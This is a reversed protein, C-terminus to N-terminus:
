LPRLACLQIGSKDFLLDCSDMVPRLKKASVPPMPFYDYTATLRQLEHHNIFLHTIGESALKRLFADTDSSEELWMRTDNLDWASAFHVEHDFYLIRTEGILLLKAEKPLNGAAWRAGEYYPLNQKLYDEESVKGLVHEFAAGERNYYAHAFGVFTMYNKITFGVVLCLLFFWAYRKRKFWHLMEHLGLLAILGLVPYIFRTNQAFCAWLLMYVVCFFLWPRSQPARLAGIVSFVLLLAFFKGIEAGSGLGDFSWFANYLLGMLGAPTFDHHAIDKTLNMTAHAAGPHEGFWQSLAPHFPNGFSLGNRIYWPSAVLLAILVHIGALFIRRNFVEKKWVLFCLGGALPMYIGTYKSGAMLGGVLSALILYRVSAANSLSLAKALALAYLLGLCTLPIALSTMTAMLAFAPASLLLASALCPLNEGEDPFVHRAFAYIGFFVGTYMFVIFLKSLTAGGLEFLTGLFLGLYAPFGTHLVAPLTTMEGRIFYQHPLGVHYYLADYFVEPVFAGCLVSGTLFVVPTLKLVLAGQPGSFSPRPAGRFFWYLTGLVLGLGGGWVIVQLHLLGLFGLGTILLSWTLLGFFFSWLVKELGTSEPLCDGMRRGSVYLLGLVLIIYFLAM